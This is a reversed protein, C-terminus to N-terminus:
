GKEKAEFCFGGGAACRSFFNGFCHLTKLEKSM